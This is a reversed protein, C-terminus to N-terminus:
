LVSSAESLAILQDFNVQNPGKLKESVEVMIKQSFENWQARDLLYIEDGYHLHPTKIGGNIGRPPRMYMSALKFVGLGELGIQEEPMSPQPTPDSYLHERAVPRLDHQMITERVFQHHTMWLEAPRGNIIDLKVWRPVYYQAETHNSM